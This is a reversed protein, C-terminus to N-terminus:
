LTPQTSRPSAMLASMCRATHHGRAPCFAPPVDYAVWACSSFFPVWIYTGMRLQLSITPHFANSRYFSCIQGIFLRAASFSAMSFFFLLFFFGVRSPALICAGAWRPLRLSPGRRVQSLLGHNRSLVGQRSGGLAVYSHQLLPYKALVQFTSM